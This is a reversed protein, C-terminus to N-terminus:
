KRKKLNKYGESFICIKCIGLEYALKDNISGVGYGSAYEIVTDCKRCHTHERVKESM